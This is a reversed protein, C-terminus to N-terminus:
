GARGYDEPELAEIMIRALVYGSIQQFKTITVQKPTARGSEVKWLATPTVGLEKALARQTMGAKERYQKFVKGINM